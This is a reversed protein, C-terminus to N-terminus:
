IVKSYRARETRTRLYHDFVMCVTRVMLRGRPTVVIWDPQLDVLGAERLGELDSMEAAFYARFDILYADEIAEIESAYRGIRVQEAIWDAQYKKLPINM